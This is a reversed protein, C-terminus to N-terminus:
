IKLRRYQQYSNSTCCNQTNDGQHMSVDTSYLTRLSRNMGCEKKYIFRFNSM